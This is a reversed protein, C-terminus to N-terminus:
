YKYKPIWKVLPSLDDQWLVAKKKNDPLGQCLLMLQQQSLGTRGCRFPHRPRRSLYGFFLAKRLTETPPKGRHFVRATDVIIVTGTKGTCSVLWQDIEGQTLESIQKHTLFQYKDEMLNLLKSTFNEGVYQFPGNNEGVNNFYIIVKLVRRDENDIHWKRQGVELGNNRSLTATFTDYAIPTELYNQAIALLRNELGWYFINLYNQLYKFNSTITHKYIDNYNPERSIEELEQFLACGSEILEKTKPFGLSYLSSIYVGKEKLSQEIKYDEESLKKLLSQNKHKYAEYKRRFLKDELFANNSLNLAMDALANQFFKRYKYLELESILQKLGNTSQSNNLTM